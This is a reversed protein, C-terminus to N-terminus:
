EIWFDPVINSGLATCDGCPRFTVLYPLLGEGPDENEGVYAVRNDLIDAVSMASPTYVRCEFPFPPLPEDPFFDEYNFFLREESVSVVNFFGLTRQDNNLGSVNGNIFGPQVNSFVNDSSSFDELQRFFDAAERTQLVQKVLISYRYSIIFDNRNIFRVQFRSLNSTILDETDAQIIMNSVVTNYCIRQEEDRVVVEFDRQNRDNIFVNFRLPAWNPAIVKYTEEYTYRYFRAAASATEADIFIAVGEEGDDNVVREGYVRDIKASGALSVMQSEYTEGSARAIHLQYAVGENAAFPENSLYLGAGQESFEYRAGDDTDIVVTAGTEVAPVEASFSSSQSLLVTQTKMEDTLTAEVVLLSELNTIEGQIEFPEICGTVMILVILGAIKKMLNM